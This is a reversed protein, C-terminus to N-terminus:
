PGDVLHAKRTIIEAIAINHNRFMKLIQSNMGQLKHDMWLKYLEGDTRVYAYIPGYCEALQQKWYKIEAQALWVRQSVKGRIEETARSTQKTQELLVAFDKKTAFNEGKRKMYAGLFRSAFAIVAVFLYVRWDVTVGSALAARVAQEIQEPTM